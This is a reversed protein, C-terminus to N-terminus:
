RGRGQPRAYRSLCRAILLVRLRARSPEGGAVHGSNGAVHQAFRLMNGSPDLFACDRIGSSRDIPEQMVEARAAELCEFTRDCDNAAFVLHSLLGKALLDAVARKDAPSLRPDAAPLELVIRVGPQSPPGVSVVRRGASDAGGRVDFGLIDRYFALAQDLDHVLVTCSSLKLDMLVGPDTQIARVHGRRDVPMVLRLLSIHGIVALSKIV